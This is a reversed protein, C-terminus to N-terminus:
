ASVELALEQQGVLEVLAELRALHVEQERRQMWVWLLERRVVEISGRPQDWM